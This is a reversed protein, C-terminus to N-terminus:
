ARESVSLALARRTYESVTMREDAAQKEVLDWLQAPIRLSHTEMPGAIRMAQRMARRRARPGRLDVCSMRM